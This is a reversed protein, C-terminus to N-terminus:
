YTKIFINFISVIDYVKMANDFEEQKAKIYFNALERYHSKFLYYFAGELNFDTTLWYYNHNGIAILMYNSQINQHYEPYSNLLYAAIANQHFTVAEKFYQDFHDNFSDTRGELLTILKPEGSHIAYFWLKSDLKGEYNNLLYNIIKMSGCYFAYELVSPKEDNKYLFPDIEFMPDYPVEQNMNFNDNLTVFTVFDRISDNQIYRCIQSSKKEFLEDTLIDVKKFHLNEKDIFENIEKAFFKTCQPSITTIKLYINLDFTIIGNKILFLIILRYDKFLDFLFTNSFTQKIQSQYKKFLHFINDIFHKNRHYCVSLVSLLQLFKQFLEPHELLIFQNISHILFDYNDEDFSSNQLYQLLSDYFIKLKIVYAQYEM